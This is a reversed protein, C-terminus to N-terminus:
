KNSDQRRLWIALGSSLAAVLFIANLSYGPRGLFLFYPVLGLALGATGVKISLQKSDIGLLMFGGFGGFFIAGLWLVSAAIGAGGEGGEAQGFFLAFSGLVAAIALLISGTV